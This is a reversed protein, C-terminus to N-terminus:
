EDDPLDHEAPAAVPVFPPPTVSLSPRVLTVDADPAGEPAVPLAQEIVPPEEIAAPAEEAPAELAGRSLAILKAVESADLRVTAASGAESVEEASRLSEHDGYLTPAPAEEEADDIPTLLAGPDFEVE